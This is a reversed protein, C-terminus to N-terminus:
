KLVYENSSKFIAPNSFITSSDIKDLNKELIDIAAPNGSLRWWNIDTHNINNILM